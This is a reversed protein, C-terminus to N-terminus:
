NEVKGNSCEESFLYIDIITGLRVLVMHTLSVMQIYFMHTYIYEASCLLATNYYSNGKQYSICITIDLRM